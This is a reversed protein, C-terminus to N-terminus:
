LSADLWRLERSAVCNLMFVMIIKLYSVLKDM